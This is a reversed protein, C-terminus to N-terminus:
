KHSRSWHNRRRRRKLPDIIQDYLRIVSEREVQDNTEEAYEKMSEADAPNTKRHCTTNRNKYLSTLTDWYKAAIGHRRAIRRLQRFVKEKKKRKSAPIGSNKRDGVYYTVDKWQNFQPVSYGRKGDRDPKNIERQCYDNLDRIIFHEGFFVMANAVNLLYGTRHLQKCETAGDELSYLTPQSDFTQEDEVLSYFKNDRTINRWTYQRSDRREVRGTCYRYCHITKEYPTTM